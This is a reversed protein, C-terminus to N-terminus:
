GNGLKGVSIDHALDRAIEGAESATTGTSLQEYLAEDKADRARDSRDVSDDGPLEIRLEELIMVLGAAIPLALLAGLVGMLTGGALLALIVVTPSLRLTKGYVKPILVRSEFEMYVLLAALVVGAVPLGGPLASLVAPVVILLGGIFPIVDVIAAFLALALANPVHCILLLLFTFLGIAASTVLQGRMYGGVIVEMNQFIRALRLHYDRPVLAYAVGKMRTADALLYFALVLSTVGSGVLAVAQPSYGLVFTGTSTLTQELRTSQVAHALPLTIRHESLVAIARARLAPAHDAMQTLQGVLPPVTLLLLCAAAGGLALLFLVLAYSRRLGLREMWAIVPNFTGALILAVVLILEVVWLEYVLWVGVITALVLAISRPTIEFRVVSPNSNPV